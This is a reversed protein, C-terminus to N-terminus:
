LFQSTKLRHHFKKLTPTTPSTTVAPSKVQQKNAHGPNLITVPKNQNNLPQPQILKTKPSSQKNLIKYSTIKAQLPQQPSQKPSHKLVGVNVGKKQVALSVGDNDTNKVIKLKSQNLNQKATVIKGGSRVVEYGPHKKLWDDLNAASPAKSGTLMKGTAREFM